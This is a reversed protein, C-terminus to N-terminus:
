HDQNVIMVSMYRRGTDPITLTARTSIDVIAGSYLNDRNM